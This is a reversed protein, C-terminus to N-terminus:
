QQDSACGAQSHQVGFGFDVSGVLLGAWGMSGMWDVWGM